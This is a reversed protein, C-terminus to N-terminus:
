EKDKFKDALNMSIMLVQLSWKAIEDTLERPFDPLEDLVTQLDEDSIEKEKTKELLSTLLKDLQNMIMTANHIREINQKTM